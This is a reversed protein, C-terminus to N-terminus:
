EELQRRLRERARFLLSKVTGEPRGTLKAVDEISRGGLYRLVVALWQPEPLQRVAALVRAMEEDLDEGASSPDAAQTEAELPQAPRGRRVADLALNRAIRVVWPGFSLGNRLTGLERYARLFAEQAVDEALHWDCLVTLAAARVAQEHRTVLREYAHTQGGLVARVTEADSESDM